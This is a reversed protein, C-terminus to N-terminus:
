KSLALHKAAARRIHPHEDTLSQKLREVAKEANVAGLGQIAAWRVFHAPHRSLRDLLADSGTRKMAKLTLCITVLESDLPNSAIAQTAKLTQRDFTWQLRMFPTTIFKLAVVPEAIRVDFAERRSDVTFVEGPGYTRHGAFVAPASPAFVDGDHEPPLRYLDAELSRKGVVAGMLHFPFSYIHESSRTYLGVRLQWHRDAALVMSHEGWQSSHYTEDAKIRVLSDLM